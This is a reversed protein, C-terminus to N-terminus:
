SIKYKIIELNIIISDDLKYNRFKYNRFKNKLFALIKM